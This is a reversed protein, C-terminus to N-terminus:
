RGFGSILLMALATLEEARDIDHPQRRALCETVERELAELVEWNSEGTADTTRLRNWFDVILRIREEDPDPPVPSLRDRQSIM